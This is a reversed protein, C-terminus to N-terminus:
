ETAKKSEAQNLFEYISHALKGNKVVENLEEVSAAAVADASGFQNLLKEKRKQGVGPISDLISRTTKRDRLKKHYTVAFRHAEDRVRQLLRLAPSTKPLTLSKKEDPLVIEELRKALGCIALDNIGQEDLAALAANLQGRGGDILCLDPMEEDGTLVRTFYRRVVENMMAFDDQGVVTQIKFHRYNKKAPKGNRFFVMSGVADSAGLNSIDFACITTPPKQLYLDKQLREVSYPLKETKERKQALLEGLLLRANSQAMEVLRLKEGKQPFVLKVAGGRIGALWKRILDDEDTNLSCYVEEPIFTADLYYQKLFSAAIDTDTENSDATMYRNQRGILLGERIQLIVVSLDSGSRAVAIVDQNVVQGATVKQKEMVADIAQIQDRVRAAEEYEQLEAYHQMEQELQAVLDASKGQLFKVVKEVEKAYEEKSILYECPGPCHKIHYQLCVKYKRGKPHPILYSCTRLRFLRVLMRHTRRMAFANTYPGFYMGGDRNMRRTIILRPFDDDGTLKLYPFRKDDKLNVNYRPRHRKVLNAELILAEVENDTVMVELDAIKEQLAATKADLAARNAFYSRVRNRLIKAKGIYIIKGSANKMLYVGPKLPLDHLKQLLSDPFNPTM